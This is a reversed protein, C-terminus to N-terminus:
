RQGQPNYMTVSSAKFTISVNEGIFLGMERVSRETVTVRFDEDARVTVTVARGDRIM